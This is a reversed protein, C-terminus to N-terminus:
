DNATHLGNGSGAMGFSSKRSLRWHKRLGPLFDFVDGAQLVQSGPEVHHCLEPFPSRPTWRRRRVMGSSVPQVVCRSVVERACIRGVGVFDQGIQWKKPPLHYPPFASTFGSKTSEPLLCGCNNGSRRFSYAPMGSQVANQLANKSSCCLGETHISPRQRVNCIADQTETM